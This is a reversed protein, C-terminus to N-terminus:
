FTLELSFANVKSLTLTQFIKTNVKSIGLGNVKSLTSKQFIKTNVKSLMIKEIVQFRQSNFVNIRQMHSFRQNEHLNKDVAFTAVEWISFLDDNGRNFNYFNTTETTKQNLCM